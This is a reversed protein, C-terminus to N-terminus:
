ILDHLTVAGDGDLDYRKAQTHIHRAVAIVDRVTVTGDGTVDGCRGAQATATPTFTPAPTQTATLVPTSTLTPQPAAACGIDISAQATGSTVTVTIGGFQSAPTLPLITSTAQGSATRAVIPDATGLSVVSFTVPTGDVVRN